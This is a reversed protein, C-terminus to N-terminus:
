PLMELGAGDFEQVSGDDLRLYIKEVEYGADLVAQHIAPLSVPENPNLAITLRQQQIDIFVGNKFQNTDVQALQSIKQEIGHACFSCVVGNVEVVAQGALVEMATREETIEPPVPLGVEDVHDAHDAYGMQPLLALITAMGIWFIFRM